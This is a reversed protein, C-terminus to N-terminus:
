RKLSKGVNWCNGIARGLRWYKVSAMDFLLPRLKSLDIKGNTLVKNDANSYHVKGLGISLYQPTGHNLIGVHAVTLFNPKGNDTAGVLTTPMPYLANVAGIANM